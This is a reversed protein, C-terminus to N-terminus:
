NPPPAIAGQSCLPSDKGGGAESQGPPRKRLLVLCGLPSAPELSPSCREGVCVGVDLQWAQGSGGQLVRLWLWSRFRHPPTAPPCPQHACHAQLVSKAAKAERKGRTVVM